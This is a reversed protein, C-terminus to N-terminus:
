CSFFGGAFLFSVARSAAMCCKFATRQGVAGLVVMSVFISLSISRHYVATLSISGRTIGIGTVAFSMRILRTRGVLRRSFILVLMRFDSMM